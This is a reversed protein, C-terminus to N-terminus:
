PPSRRVRRAPQDLATGALGSVLHRRVLVFLILVPAAALFAAAMLQNWQVGSDSAFGSLGVALTRTSSGSLVSAFLVEGWALTFAFVSVAAIGPRANPVVVLVLTRVPGAGLDYASEEMERPLTSFYNALLGVSFPLAFTLATLVLGAYSDLLDIGTRRRLESFTLVLPVLFLLGPVTQSALLVGAISRRGAFTFRALAYGAPIAIMVAIATASVSVVLSNRLYLGLPVTSWMDLFPRLTLHRPIWRFPAQVDSSPLFATQAMAYLPVTVFLTLVTLGIRRLWRFGEGLIM